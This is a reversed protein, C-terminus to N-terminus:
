GHREEELEVVKVAYSKSGSGFRLTVDDHWKYAGAVGASAYEQSSESGFFTAGNIRTGYAVKGNARESDTGKVFRDVADYCEKCLECECVLKGVRTFTPNPQHRMELVYKDETIEKGCRDCRFVHSM